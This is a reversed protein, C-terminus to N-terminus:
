KKSNQEEIHKQQAASVAPWLRAGDLSHASGIAHIMEGPATLQNYAAYVTTPPCTSDVFGVWFYGRAKIRPAFNVMDFYRAAQLVAPDPVGNHVPVLRPWGAVRGAVMGGHDCMATVMATYFTVRPDLAAGAMAQAGGQSGGEIMLTRGDWEPQSALFDLARQVRLFMGLFYCTDRSERGEHRYNKLAGRELDVYFERPKGNPIGHANIALSIVGRGAWRASALLDAGRVGAGDVCLRAPHGGPKAGIPRSYYGSVPAGACDAQLDFVEIGPRDAPAPVPTLRPNVPIAALRKKQADWFADFDDPPPMGPKIALPDIAAGAVATHNKGPTKFTVACRLFGPEDLTGTVTARGDRIAVTGKKVPPVGDRSILWEVEGAAAPNQRHRLTIRFTVTEGQRYIADPRDAEIGLVYDAPTKGDWSTTAPAYAAAVAPVSTLMILAPLIYKKLVVTM